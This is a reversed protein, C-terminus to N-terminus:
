YAISSRGEPRRGEQDVLWTDEAEDDWDLLHGQENLLATSPAFSGHVVLRTLHLEPSAESDTEPNLSREALAAFCAEHSALLVRDGSFAVSSVVGTNAFSRLEKGSKVDWLKASGDSSGTLVQQGNPSFAVSYVSGGHGKFSRLEQGSAADWLKASSDDSGTLVQQGNPSFAVLNGEDDHGKFGRLEQGSAADWLKASGDVSGTLVQQGDPSFDVSFVARGHSTFSRLEQGSATDWLKASGDFGGTLVQQGNPSFAVSNVLGGHGTFSRLEQGSAADWLKASGDSGGTFVQKGKPSFAVSYVSGGHGTFSRLEQGSKADWLKASGDVGGTLVQQGNPSFAVSNVLGCHGTFSRLEQGSMADWLKASGDVGGTLVQQGNPSFAVSLVPRGHGKFSRLEQGSATDWLKASGDLSGTVVQQGNPSFAVSQVSGGRGTFSRLEQGSAADWLMASGNSSGTLVQQGNPSFAVSYVSRGHGTFSRLEQGSAADWLKASGDDSGTFVQKGNPSFAVSFVWGGNGTFSRLEQGSAADWLKASGDSSGTLVQQGNPSFAVSFVSRGHGKFSRLEQGSAADWLKASGDMGGTLVQQGNPSFAVSRVWDDHGEFSRLEQGSIADWLKASGDMGGTLVQQGNPSFAVSNVDAKQVPSRWAAEQKFQLRAAGLSSKSQSIVQGARDAGNWVVAQTECNRLLSQAFNTQKDCQVQGFRCRHARLQLLNTGRLDLAPLRTFDADKWQSRVLQLGRLNLPKDSSLAKRPLAPWGLAIATQWLMGHLAPAPTYATEGSAVSEGAVAGAEEFALLRWVPAVIEGLEQPSYRQGQAAWIEQLFDSSEKNLAQTPLLSRLAEDSLEGQHTLLLADWLFRALFYEAFSRHAFAFREAGPRVIFTATRLDDQLTQMQSAEYQGPFLQKVMRVLWRDLREAEWAEAGESWMASALAGMVVPKHAAQLRHKGGDRQVWESVTIAYMRSATINEGREKLRMLEGLQESMMALLVPRSALEQLNYTTNITHLLQAAEGQPLRKSLYSEVDSAGWPLLTLRLYESAQAIGRQRTNFFGKLDAVDRFYHTRCSVIVRAKSPKNQQIQEQSPELVRLLQDFVKILVSRDNKLLEDLGDFVFILEGARASAIHSQAAWEFSAGSADLAAGANKKRLVISVIDALSLSPLNSVDALEALDIMLAKPPQRKSSLKECAASWSDRHVQGNLVRTFQYAHSTKGTGYDGLLALLRHKPLAQRDNQLAWQLMADLANVPEREPRTLRKGVFEGVRSARPDGDANGAHDIGVSREATGDQFGDIDVKRMHAPPGHLPRSNAQSRLAMDTMATKIRQPLSKDAEHRKASSHAEQSVIAGSGDGAEKSIDESTRSEALVDTFQEAAYRPSQTDTLLVPAATDTEFWVLSLAAQQRGPRSMCLRLPSRGHDDKWARNIYRTSLERRAAQAEQEPFLTSLVHDAQAQGEEDLLEIVRQYIQGVVSAQFRVPLGEFLSQAQSKQIHTRQVRTMANGKVKEVLVL